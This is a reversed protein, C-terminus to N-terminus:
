ARNKWYIEIKNELKHIEEIQIDSEDSAIILDNELEKNKKKLNAIETDSQIIFENFKSFNERINNRTFKMEGTAFAQIDKILTAKRKEQQAYEHNSKEVSKGIDILGKETAMKSDYEQEPTLKVFSM